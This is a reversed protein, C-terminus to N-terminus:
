LKFTELQPKAAAVRAAAKEKAAKTSARTKAENAKRIVEASEVVLVNGKSSYKVPCVLDRENCIENFKDIVDATKKADISLHEQLFAVFDSVKVNTCKERFEEQTSGGLYEELFRFVSTVPKDEDTNLTIRPSLEETKLTTCAGEYVKERLHDELLTYKTVPVMYAQLTTAIELQKRLSAANM